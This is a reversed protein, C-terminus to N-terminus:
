NGGTSKPMFLSLVKQTMADVKEAASERVSVLRAEVSAVSEDFAQVRVAERDRRVQAIEENLATESDQLYKRAQSRAHEVIEGSEVKSAEIQALLEQEHSAVTAVISQSTNM